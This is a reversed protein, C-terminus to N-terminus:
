MCMHILKPKKQTQAQCPGPGTTLGRWHQIVQKPTRFNLLDATVIAILRMDNNLWNQFVKNDGSFLIQELNTRIRSDDITMHWFFLNSSKELDGEPTQTWGQGINTVLVSVM